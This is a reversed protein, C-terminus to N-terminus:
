FVGRLLLLRTRSAAVLRLFHPSSYCSYALSRTV